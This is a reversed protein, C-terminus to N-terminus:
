PEWNALISFGFLPCRVHDEEHAEEEEQVRGNFTSTRQIESARRNPM